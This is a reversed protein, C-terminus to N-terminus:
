TRDEEFGWYYRPLHQFTMSGLAGDRKRRVVVFPALFGEVTFDRQLEETNWVQGHREELAAREAAEANILGVMLRRAPETPDHTM